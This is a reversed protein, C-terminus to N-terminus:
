LEFPWILPKGDLAAAIDTALWLVKHVYGRATLDHMTAETGPLYHEEEATQITWSTASSGFFFAPIRVGKSAAPDNAVVQWEKPISAPNVYAVFIFDGADRADGLGALLVGFADQRLLRAYRAGNPTPVEIIDGPQMQKATM